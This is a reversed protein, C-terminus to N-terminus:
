WYQNRNPLRRTRRHRHNVKTYTPSQQPAAQQPTAERPTPLTVEGAETGTTDTVDKDKPAARKECNSIAKKRLDEIADKHYLCYKKWSNITHNSMKNNLHIALADHTLEANKKFMAGIYQLSKTHEAEKFFRLWKPSEESPGSPSTLRPSAAGAGGRGKGRRKRGSMAPRSRVRKPGDKRPKEPGRTPYDNPDMLKGKEYSDIVFAPTVTPKSYDQASYWMEDFYHEEWQGLVVYDADEVDDTFGGGMARFIGAIRGRGKLIIPICFMIPKGVDHEFLKPHTHLPTPITSPGATNDPPPPSPMLVSQVPSTPLAFNEPPSFSQLDGLDPLTGDSGTSDQRSLTATVPAGPVRPAEPQTGIISTPNQTPPPPHFAPGPQNSTPPPPLTQYVAPRQFWMVVEYARRLDELTPQQTMSFTGPHFPPWAPQQGYVVTGMDAPQSMPFPSFMGPSQILQSNYPVVQNTLPLQPTQQQLMVPDHNWHSPTPTYPQQSSPPTIGTSGQSFGSLTSFNYSRNEPTPRPTQLQLNSPAPPPVYGFNNNINDPTVKCDGWNSSEVLPHGANLSKNVWSYHLVAKSAAERLLDLAGPHEPDVLIISADEVEDM